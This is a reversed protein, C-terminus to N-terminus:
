CDLDALYNTCLSVMWCVLETNCLVICASRVFRNNILTRLLVTLFKMRRRTPSELNENWRFTVVVSWRVVYKGVYLSFTLVEMLSREGSPLMLIYNASKAWLWV